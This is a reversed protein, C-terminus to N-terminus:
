QRVQQLAKEKLLLDILGKRNTLWVYNARALNWAMPTFNSNTIVQAKNCYYFRKGTHVERVADEGVKNKYCKAQIATKEGNKEIVLDVGYDGGPRGGTRTVKFGLNEYLIQLRKEFDDGNMRDIEFIGSQALKHHQYLSIAFMVLAILALFLWIYWFQAMGKFFTM